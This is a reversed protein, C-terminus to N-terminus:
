HIHSSHRLIRHHCMHHIDIMKYYNIRIAFFQFQIIVRSDELVVVVSSCGVLDEELSMCVYVSKSLRIHRSVDGVVRYGELRPHVVRHTHHM